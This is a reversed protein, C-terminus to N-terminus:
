AAKVLPCKADAMPPAADPGATTAVLKYYDWPAHSEAPKKVEFLYAPMLARGDERITSKGFADDDTPMKKMQAIAAAGSAKAAAAGMADIAKLYHVVGGYCGAQELNAPTGNTRANLRKTFARTRDNLDWYFSETLVLGQAIPLTLAHVVNLSALLAALKFGNETTLGFEHAQKVSNVTDGGANAFAIVKARSAQAQLLYSSFDTTEPFPYLASGLVKGKAREVFMTADRQLQQGFVYNATIFFWTDGGSRATAAATSAALMYTDYSWHITQANCQPGTLDPTGAGTNIYARDKEHAVAAVALAVSSTPVDVICDVGDRDFWQRALGAGIDPKNQHDGFVIEVAYPKDAGFDAVAQRACEVSVMGSVDRYPGSMDNMVGIRIVPKAQARAARGLLPLAGVSGLLARRNIEFTM